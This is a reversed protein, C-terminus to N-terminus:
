RRGSEFQAIQTDEFGQSPAPPRADLRAPLEGFNAPDHGAEREAQAAGVAYTGRPRLDGDSPTRMLFAGISVVLIAGILWLAQRFQRRAVGADVAPHLPHETPKEFYDAISM